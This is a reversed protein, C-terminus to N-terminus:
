FNCNQCNELIGFYSLKEIYFYYKELCLPGLDMPFSQLASYREIIIAFGGYAPRNNENRCMKANGAQKKVIVYM